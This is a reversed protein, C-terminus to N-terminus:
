RPEMGKARIVKLAEPTRLFAILAAGARSTKTKAGLAASFGFSGQLEGPFPGVIEIGPVAMLEQRQHLAIEAHGTAVAEGPSNAVQGPHGITVFVSKANVEDAIGLQTLVRAIHDGSSGGVAASPRAISKASLLLRKFADPTAIDPRAAGKLIAVAAVSRAIPTVSHAILKGDKVLAEVASENLMAVDVEEGDAIRKALLGTSDFTIKLRHGASREFGPGLELMVQRMGVASLVKVEAAGASPSVMMSLAVVM